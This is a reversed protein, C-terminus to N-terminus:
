RVQTFCPTPSDLSHSMSTGILCVTHLQVQKVIPDVSKWGCRSVKREEEWVAVEEQNSASTHKQKTLLYPIHHIHHIAHEVSPISPFHPPFLLFM